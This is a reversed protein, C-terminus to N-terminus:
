QCALLRQVFDIVENPTKNFDEDDLFFTQSHNGFWVHLGLRDSWGNQDSGYRNYTIGHHRNTGPPIADELGKLLDILWRRNKM